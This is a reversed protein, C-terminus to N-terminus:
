WTTTGPRRRGGSSSSSSGSKRSSNWEWRLPGRDFRVVGLGERPHLLEEKVRLDLRDGDRV